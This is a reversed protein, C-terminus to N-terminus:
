ASARRAARLCSGAGAREWAQRVDDLAREEDEVADHEEDGLNALGLVDVDVTRVFWRSRNRTMNSFPVSDDIYRWDSEIRSLQLAIALDDRGDVDGSIM